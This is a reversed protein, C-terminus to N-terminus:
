GTGKVERLRETVLPVIDLLDAVVGYHAIDFIPAQPDTNIALILEADKVGETHEPAGSIGAAVYLRPKVKLGSKGVLRTRALWGRDVVPRTACLAGRLAEALEELDQVDEESEVGRGVGILVEERTIDVDEGEMEVLEQFRVAPRALDVRPTVKEVPPAGEARGTEPDVIGTMVSVIGPGSFESEVFAKGGYLQSTVVIADGAFDIRQGNAVLPLGLAASLISAVDMGQSSTSILTIRPERERLLGEMAAAYAAPTFQALAGDEVYLVSDARGMEGTLSDVGSGMLVAVLKGGIASAAQHGLGLLEFSTEVLSGGSHEMLAYVDGSM